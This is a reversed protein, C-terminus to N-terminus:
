AGYIIGELEEIIEQKILDCRCVAPITAEAEVPASYIPTLQNLQSAIDDIQAQLGAYVQSLENGSLDGSSNAASVLDDFFRQTQENAYIKGDKTFGLSEGYNPLTTITM